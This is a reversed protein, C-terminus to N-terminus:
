TPTLFPDAAKPTGAGPQLQISYQVTAETGPITIKWLQAEPHEVTCPTGPALQVGEVGRSYNEKSLFHTAMALHFVHPVNRLELSIRVRSLDAPDAQLVYNLVPPQANLRVASAILALLIRLNVVPTSCPVPLRLM